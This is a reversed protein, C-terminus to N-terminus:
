EGIRKRVLNAGVQRERARKSVSIEPHLWATVLRGQSEPDFRFQGNRGELRIALKQGEEM